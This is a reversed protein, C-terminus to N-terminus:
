GSQLKAATGSINKAKHCKTYFVGAWLARRLFYRVILIKYRM